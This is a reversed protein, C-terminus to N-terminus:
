GEESRSRESDVEHGSFGKPDLRVYYSNVVWPVEVM